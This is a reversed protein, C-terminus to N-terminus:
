ITGTVVLTAIGPTLTYEGTVPNQTYTAAPVTIRGSNTVFLGTAENYEYQVGETWATGNYTVVLDTLIPDFADTIVANDTAVVEQNGTNQIM